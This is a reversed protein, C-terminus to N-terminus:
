ALVGVVLERSEADAETDVLIVETDTMEPLYEVLLTLLSLLPLSLICGVSTGGLLSRMRALVLSGTSSLVTGGTGGSGLSRVLKREEWVLRDTGAEVDSSTFM